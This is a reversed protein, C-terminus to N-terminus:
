RLSDVCTSNIFQLPSHRHRVTCILNNCFQGGFGASISVFNSCSTSAGKTFGRICIDNLGQAWSRPNEEEEQSEARAQLGARSLGRHGPGVGRHRAAHLWNGGPQGEDGVRSRLIVM